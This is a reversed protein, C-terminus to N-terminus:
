GNNRSLVYTTGDLTFQHNAIRNAYRGIIAGFYPSETQYESLSNLGLTVDAFNGARDPVEIDTIIGGWDLLKVVMGNANTLTYQTVVKGNDLTGYPESTIGAASPRVTQKTSSAGSTVGGVVVGTAIAAVTAALVVRRARGGVWSRLGSRSMA